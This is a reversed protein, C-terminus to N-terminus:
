RADPLQTYVHHHCASGLAVRTLLLFVGSLRCLGIVRNTNRQRCVLNGMQRVNVKHRAHRGLGEDLGVFAGRQLVQELRQPLLNCPRKALTSRPAATFEARSASRHRESKGAKAFNLTPPRQGTVSEYDCARVVAM